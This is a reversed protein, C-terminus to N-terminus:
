VMMGLLMLIGSGNSGACHECSTVLSKYYIQCRKCRKRAGSDRHAQYSGRRKQSAKSCYVGTAGHCGYYAQLGESKGCKSCRELSRMLSVISRTAARSHTINHEM